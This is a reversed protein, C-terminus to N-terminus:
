LKGIRGWKCKLQLWNIQLFYKKYHIEISKSKAKKYIMRKLCLQVKVNPICCYINIQKKWLANVSLVHFWFKSSLSTQGRQRKRPWHLARTIKLFCRQNAKVPSAQVVLWSFLDIYRLQKASVRWITIFNLAYLVIFNIIFLCFYCFALSINLDVMFNVKTWQEDFCHTLLSRLFLFILRLSYSGAQDLWLGVKDFRRYRVTAWCIGWPVCLVLYRCRRQGQGDSIAWQSLWSTACVCCPKYCTISDTREGKFPM